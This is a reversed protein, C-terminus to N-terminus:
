RLRRRLAQRAAVLGFVLTLLWLLGTVLGTVDAISVRQSRGDQLVTVAVPWNWVYGFSSWRVSAVLSEPTITVKGAAIPAGTRRGFQLDLQKM